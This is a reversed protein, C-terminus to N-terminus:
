KLNNLLADIAKELLSESVANPFRYPFSNALDLAQHLRFSSQPICLAFNQQMLLNGLYEQETQGPTPILISKKKLCALDMVTSYGSRAIVMSASKLVPELLKAPLHNHFEIQPYGKPIEATGPQGRLFVVPGRYTQLEQLLKQELLTRQPEPGSLLVLLHTEGTKESPSFRSLPGLYSFPISPMVQPHSLAGALGPAKPVDPVWCETFHRFRQYIMKQLLRDSKQGWGTKVLLQHSVLISPIGPHYFGYRNDSIVAQFHHEKVWAAVRENEYQIASIIKPIQTALVLPLSWSSRSYNVGYGKLPLQELQPFESRLLNAVAGEAALVVECDRNLLYHVIPIIRTAHGLGWDLPAVLIRPRVTSRPQNM